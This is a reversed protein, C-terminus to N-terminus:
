CSQYFTSICDTLPIKQLEKAYLGGLLTEVIDTVATLVSSQLNFILTKVNPLEAPFKSHHLCYCVLINSKCVSTKAILSM